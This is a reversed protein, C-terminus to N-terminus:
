LSMSFRTRASFWGCFFNGKPFNTKNRQQKAFKLWFTIWFWLIYDTSTYRIVNKHSDRGNHSKQQRRRNFMKTSHKNTFNSPLVVAKKKYSTYSDHHYIVRKIYLLLHEHHILIINNNSLLCNILRM